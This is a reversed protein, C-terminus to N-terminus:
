KAEQAEKLKALLETEKAISTEISARLRAIQEDFEFIRLEQEERAANVRKYEVQLKKLEYPTM